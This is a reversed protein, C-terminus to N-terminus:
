RPREAAWLGARAVGVPLPVAPLPGRPAEPAATGTTSHVSKSGNRGSSLSLAHYFYTHVWGYLKLDWANHERMIDGAVRLLQAKSRRITRLGTHTNAHPVENVTWNLAAAILGTANSLLPLPVVLSFRSLLAKTAAHHTPGIAHLRAFFIRPGLLMRTNYESASPTGMFGIRDEGDLVLDHAYITQLRGHAWTSCSRNARAVSPCLLLLQTALRSLPEHMLFTYRIRPCWTALPQFRSLPWLDDFISQENRRVVLRFFNRSHNGKGGVQDFVAQDSLGMCSPDGPLSSSTLNMRANPCREALVQQAEQLHHAFKGSGVEPMVSEIAGFVNFNNRSLESRLSSCTAYVRASARGCWSTPDSGYLSDFAYAKWAAQGM